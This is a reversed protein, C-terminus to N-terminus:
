RRDAEFTLDARSTPSEESLDLYKVEAPGREWEATSAQESNM